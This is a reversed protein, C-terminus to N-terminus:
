GVRYPQFADGLAYPPVETAPLPTSLEEVTPGVRDAIPQLLDLDFGFIRAANGGLIARIDEEPLGGLSHRISKKFHPWSGEPHPFDGGWLLNQIGIQNRLGRAEFADISSCAVFGNRYWYESPLLELKKRPGAVTVSQWMQDFEHFIGPLSAIQHEIFGARLRPHRDFVGAAMLQWFVRKSFFSLEIWTLAQACMPDTGYLVDADPARAAGPHSVLPLELEECLAWMPEWHPDVVPPMGTTDAGLVAFPLVVGGFIGHEHAWRIDALAADLDRYDLPLSAGIRGPIAGCFDALWRLHADQAVREIKPDSRDMGPPLSPGTQIVEAVAGQAELASSRVAPDVIGPPETPFYRGLAEDMWDPDNGFGMFITKMGQKYPDSDEVSSASSSGFGEALDTVSGLMTAHQGLSAALAEEFQERYAPDIYERYREPHDPPADHGDSSIVVYHSSSPAGSSPNRDSSTDTLSM